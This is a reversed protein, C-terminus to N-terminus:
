LRWTGRAAHCVRRASRRSAERLEAVEGELKEFREDRRPPPPVAIAAPASAVVAGPPIDGEVLDESLRHRFREEKQGPRRALEAVFERDILETLVDHLAAMDRFAQM